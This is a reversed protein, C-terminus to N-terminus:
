AALEYYLFYEVKYQAGDIAEADIGDQFEQSAPLSANWYGGLALNWIVYFRRQMGEIEGFPWDRWEESNRLAEYVVIDDVLLTISDPTWKMTYNHYAGYLNPVKITGSHPSPPGNRITNFSHLTSNILGEGDEFDPRVQAGLSEMIDMEGGAQYQLGSAMEESTMLPFLAQAGGEPLLWFASWTGIEDPIMARTTFCGYMAAFRGITDVRGSTYNFQINTQSGPDFNTVPSQEHHAEIVLGDGEEIRVNAEEDTYLQKENGWAASWNNGDQMNQIRVYNPLIQTTLEAFNIEHSPEQAFNSDGICANVEDAQASVQIPSFSNSLAFLVAILLGVLEFREIRKKM